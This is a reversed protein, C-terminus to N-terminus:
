YQVASIFRHNTIHPALRGVDSVMPLSLGGPVLLGGFFSQRTLTARKTRWVLWAFNKLWAFNAQHVVLLTSDLSWNM